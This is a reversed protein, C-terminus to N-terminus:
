QWRWHHPKNENIKKEQEACSVKGGEEGEGGAGFVEGATKMWRLQLRSSAAVAAISALEKM